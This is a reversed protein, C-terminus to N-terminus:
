AVVEFLEEEAMDAVERGKEAAAEDGAMGETLEVARRTLRIELSEGRSNFVASPRGEKVERVEINGKGLTAGTSMQLGDLMCSVPTRRGTFATVTLDFHGEFGLRRGALRGMRLGYVLYPGLHGHMGVAEHIMKETGQETGAPRLVIHHQVFDAYHLRGEVTRERGMIDRLVIRGDEPELWSVDEMLLNEEEGEAMFVSSECM